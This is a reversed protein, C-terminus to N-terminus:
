DEVLPYDNINPLKLNGADNDYYYNHRDELINTEYYGQDNGKYKALLYKNKTKLLDNQWLNNFKQIQRGEDYVVGGEEVDKKILLKNSVREFSHDDNSGYQYTFSSGPFDKIQEATEHDDKVTESFDELESDGTCSSLIGPYYEDEFEKKADAQSMAKETRYKENESSDEVLAYLTGNKWFIYRDYVVYTKKGDATETGSMLDALVLDNLSFYETQTFKTIEEVKEDKTNISEEGSNESQIKIKTPWKFSSDEQHALIEKTRKLATEDDVKKLTPAYPDKKQGGGCAVLFFTASLALVKNLKM